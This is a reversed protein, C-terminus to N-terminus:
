SLHKEVHCKKVHKINFGCFVLFINLTVNNKLMKFELDAKQQTTSSYQTGVQQVKQTNQLNSDDEWAMLM